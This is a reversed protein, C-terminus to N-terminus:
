VLPKELDPHTKRHLLLGFGETQTDQKMEDVMDHRRLCMTVSMVSGHSKLCLVKEVM